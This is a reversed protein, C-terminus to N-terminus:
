ETLLMQKTDIIRGDTVLSYLYMGANFENASIIEQGTGRQNITITKLLTGVMNCIHLQANQVTQPIEFRITTQNNFPNPTNQYLKAPNDDTNLGNSSDISGSKLNNNCCDNEISKVQASLNNIIKQQEKVAEVLVSIIGIYDISLYGDSNQEVLEPFVKQLDQAVFGLRKKKALEALYKEKEKQYEILANREKESMDSTEM